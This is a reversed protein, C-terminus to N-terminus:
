LPSTQQPLVRIKFKSMTQQKLHLTVVDRTFDYISRPATESPWHAWVRGIVYKQIFKIMVLITTKGWKSSPITLHTMGAPRLNHKLRSAATGRHVWSKTLKLAEIVEHWATPRQCSARSPSRQLTEFNPKPNFTSISLYPTEMAWLFSQSSKGNYFLNHNEMAANYQCITTLGPQNVIPPEWWITIM